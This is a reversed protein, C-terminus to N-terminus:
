WEEAQCMKELGHDGGTLHTFGLEALLAEAQTPEMALRLYRAMQRTPRLGGDALDRLVREAKQSRSGRKRAYAFLLCAYFELRQRGAERRAKFIM